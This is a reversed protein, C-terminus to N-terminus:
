CFTQPTNRGVGRDSARSTMAVDTAEMKPCFGAYSISANWRVGKDDTLHFSQCRFYNAVVPTKRVDSELLRGPELVAASM